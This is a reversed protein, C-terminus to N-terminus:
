EANKDAVSTINVSLGSGEIKVAPKQRSWEVLTRFAAAIAKPDGSGEIKDLMGETRKDLQEGLDVPKSDAM